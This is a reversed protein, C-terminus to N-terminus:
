IRGLSMDRDILDEITDVGDEYATKLMHDFLLADSFMFLFIGGITWFKFVSIMDITLDSLKSYKDNDSVIGTYSAKRINAYTFGKRDELSTYVEYHGGM